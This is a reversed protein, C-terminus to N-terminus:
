VCEPNFDPTVSRVALITAEVSVGIELLSGALVWGTQVTRNFGPRDPLQAVRRLYADLERTALPPHCKTRNELHCAALAGALPVGRAQLSRMLDRMTAHRESTIVREPIRLPQGSPTGSGVGEPVPPVTLRAPDLRTTTVAEVTVRRPPDYKFNLSGPLRLVRAPESVGTDVIDAVSFALRQLLNRTEDYSRRLDLPPQLLWYPHLGGGSNVVISAPTRAALRRRTENEGLKKFDADVFLATLTQCHAADGRRDTVSEPTRLAVGFYAAMRVDTTRAIFREVRATEFLGGRIPVFDRVSAVLRLEDRAAPESRPVTRLELVGSQGSYLM